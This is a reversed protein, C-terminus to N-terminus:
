VRVVPQGDNVLLSSNIALSRRNTQFQKTELRKELYVSYVFALCLYFYINVPFVNLQAANGIGGSLIGISTALCITSIRREISGYPLSCVFRHLKYLFAFFFTTGFIVPIYGYKVVSWFIIDDGLETLDYDKTDLGKMKWGFPTLMNDKTMLNVWGNLRGNFSGITTAQELRSDTSKLLFKLETEAHELIRMDKILPSCVVLLIVSSIGTIYAIVTSKWHRFLVYALISVIGCLWGTRSLTLYCATAFLIALMSRVFTMLVSKKSVSVFSWFFMIGCMVSVIGAGNMTSFCRMNEGEVLIRVEQSLNTLLYDYEFDALGYVGHKIMYLAVGIFVIYIFNILKVKDGTNKFLVPILVLLFPYAVFNVLGGFNRVGEGRTTLFAVIMITSSFCFTFILSRTVKIKRMIAGLLLNVMAGACLLPPTALSCMVDFNTPVGAIVMLRKFFDIYATCFILAYIAARPKFVGLIFAAIAVYLYFRGLVSTRSTIAEILIYTAFFLGLILVVIRSISINQM